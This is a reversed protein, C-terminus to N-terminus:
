CRTRMSERSREQAAPSPFSKATSHAWAKEIYEIASPTRCDTDGHDVTVPGIRKAAALAAKRAAVDRGGISILAKNMAERERNPAAHISKEINAVRSAFWDLAIGEDRMALASVLLWGCCRRVESKSALWADARSRGHPGEAALQAVYGHCMRATDESAWRDLDAPSMLLPDAVKLALNRADFNGTSWLALALEQDVKIRKVFTKMDAFSVGFMPEGVGHRAYTKRTQASGAKELASMADALSMRRPADKVASKSKSIAPSKTAM